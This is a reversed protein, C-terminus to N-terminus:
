ADCSCGIDLFNRRGMQLCAVSNQSQDLMDTLPRLDAVFVLPTGERPNQVQSRVAKGSQLLYCLPPCCQGPGMKLCSLPVPQGLLAPQPASAAQRPLLEEHQLQGPKLHVNVWWELPLPKGMLSRVVQM